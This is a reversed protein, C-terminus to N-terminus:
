KPIAIKKLDLTTFLQRKVLRALEHYWFRKQVTVIRAMRLSMIQYALIWVRSRTVRGNSFEAAYVFIDDLNVDLKKYLLDREDNATMSGHKKIQQHLEGGVPRTHQISVCDLIAAKYHNEAMLRTWLGDVGFGSKSEALIPLAAKLVRQTLCAAMIEISNSYRIKFYPCQLYIMHSYYSDHSLSPQCVDLRHTTALEFIRKIDDSTAKLDDDPLLFYDYAALLDPRQTFVHCIGDWKGGKYFVTQEAPDSYLTLDDGFYSVILDYFGLRSGTLWAEHLSKDGARVIVLNRVPMKM